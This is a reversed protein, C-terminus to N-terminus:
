LINKEEPRLAQKLTNEYKIYRIKAINAGTKKYIKLLRSKKRCSKLLGDTM